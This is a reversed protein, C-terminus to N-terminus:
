GGLIFFHVSDWGITIKLLLNSSQMHLSPIPVIFVIALSSLLSITSEENGGNGIRMQGM